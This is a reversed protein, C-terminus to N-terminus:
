FNWEWSAFIGAFVVISALAIMAVSIGDAGVAYHINLSKFWVVDNVFLMEATNGAHRASIYLFILVASLLLQIGM